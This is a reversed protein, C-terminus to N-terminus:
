SGKIDFYESMKASLVEFSASLVSAHVGTMVKLHGFLFTFPQYHFTKQDEAVRGKPVRPEFYHDGYMHDAIHHLRDWTNNLM